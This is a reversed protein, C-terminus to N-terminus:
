ENRARKVAHRTYGAEEVPELATNLLQVMARVESQQVELQKLRGRAEDREVRLTQAKRRYYEWGDQSERMAACVAEATLRGGDSCLERRFPWMGQERFLASLHSWADTTSLEPGYSGRMGRDNVASGWYDGRGRDEAMVPRVERYAEPTTSVYPDLYEWSPSPVDMDRGRRQESDMKPGFDRNSPAELTAPPPRVHGWEVLPASRLGPLGPTTMTGVDPNAMREEPARDVEGVEDPRAKSVRVSPASPVVSYEGGRFDVVVGWRGNIMGKGPGAGATGDWRYQDHFTLGTQVATVSYESDKLLAEIGLSGWWQRLRSPVRWMVGRLLLDPCWRSFSAVAWETKFVAWHLADHRVLAGGRFALVAPLPVFMHAPVEVEPWWPPLSPYLALRAERGVRYYEVQDWSVLAGRLRDRHERKYEAPFRGPGKHGAQFSTVFLAYASDRAYPEGPVLFDGSQSFEQLPERGRRPTDPWQYPVMPTAGCWLALSVEEDPVRPAAATVTWLKRAYEEEEPLRLYLPDMEWETPLRRGRPAHRRRGLWAAERSDPGTIAEFRKGEWIDGATAREESWLRFPMGGSTM